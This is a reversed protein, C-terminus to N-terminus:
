PSIRPKHHLISTPKQLVEHAKSPGLPNAYKLKQNQQKTLVEDCPPATLIAPPVSSSDESDQRNVTATTTSQPHDSTKKKQEQEKKNNEEKKSANQKEKEEDDSSSDDDDDNIYNARTAKGEHENVRCGKEPEFRHILTPWVVPTSEATSGPTQCLLRRVQSPFVSPCIM